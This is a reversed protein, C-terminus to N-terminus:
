RSWHVRAQKSDDLWQYEVHGSYARRMARGLRQALKENTTTVEIQGGDERIEMVRELPNVNRARVDENRILNLIEERHEPVFDGTLTVIGGPQKDHLKQCAPCVVYHLDPLRLAEQYIRSDLSWHENHYVAHCERCIVTGPYSEEPLYPDVYDEVNRRIPALKRRSANPIGLASEHNRRTPAPSQRNVHAM